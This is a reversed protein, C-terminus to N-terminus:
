PSRRRIVRAQPYTGTEVGDLPFFRSIQYSQRKLSAVIADKLHPTTNIFVSEFRTKQLYDVPFASVKVPHKQTEIAVVRVDHGTKLLGETINHMAICGGDVQPLPPKHCLQLIKM